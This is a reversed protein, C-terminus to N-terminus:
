WPAALQQRRSPRKRAATLLLGLALLAAAPTPRGHGPAARHGTRALACECGTAVPPLAPVGALCTERGAMAPYVQCVALRDDDALTRRTTDGQIVAAFMTAEAAQASASDCAPVPNGEHDPGLPKGANLVCNHELGIAHGFEHTLTNQLDHMKNQAAPRNALFIRQASGTGDASIKVLDDWLFHTANIEIDVDVVFARAMTTNNQVTSANNFIRSTVITIALASPDYCIEQEGAPERCWRTTRFTVNNQSDIAVPASASPLALVHMFLDTCSVAPRSWTAAANRAADLFGDNTLPAPPSGTHVTLTLCPAYWRVPFGDMTRTRVYAGAPTATLCMTVLAMSVSKITRAM